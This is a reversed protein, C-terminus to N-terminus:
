RRTKPLAAHVTFGGERNPGVQLTGDLAAARERMGITGHRDRETRDTKTTGGDDAVTLDIASDGFRVTVVTKAGPAHKLVNTLAEQLIRYASWDVLTSLEGREGEIRLDVPLKADRLGAVLEPLRELGSGPRTANGGRDLDLAIDLDDCARRGVLESSTLLRAAEALDHDLMLRAAGIQLLMANLGHGVIDHADHIIRDREAEALQVARESAALQRQAELTMHESRRREAIEVALFLGTLIIVGIRLQLLEIDEAARGSLALWNAALAAATGVATMARLGGFFSAWVLGPLALSIASNHWVVGSAVVAAAGTAAVAAVVTLPAQVDFHIPRAWVLILSGIVLVGLADAAWWNRVFYWFGEQELLQPAFIVKYTNNLVASLFPAILVPFLAFCVLVARMGGRRHMAATFLFAGIVPEAMNASVSGVLGSLPRDHSLGFSLAAAGIAVVWLPWTRRRTLVLVAFALGAPPYFAAGGAPRLLWLAVQALLGYAAALGVALGCLRAWGRAGSSVPWAGARGGLCVAAPAGRPPEPRDAV